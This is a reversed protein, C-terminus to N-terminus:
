ESVIMYMFKETKKNFILEKEGNYAEVILVYRPIEDTYTDGDYSKEKYKINLKNLWNKWQELNTENKLIKELGRKYFNREKLLTDIQNLLRVYYKRNEEFNKKGNNVRM